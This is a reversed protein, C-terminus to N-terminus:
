LDRQFEEVVVLGGRDDYRDEHQNNRDLPRGGEDPVSDQLLELVECFRDVAIDLTNDNMIRVVRVGAPYSEVQRSVRMRAEDATERGRAVIREVLVDDPATIEVVTVNPFRAAAEELVTRSCNIAVTRGATLDYEVSVPIGYSNGHARWWLAFADSAVAIMFEMDTMTLHDEASRNAFRTVFRRPFVINRNSAFRAKAGNLMSDKGAGSPGVVLVLHGRSDAM